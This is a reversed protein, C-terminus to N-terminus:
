AAAAARLTREMVIVTGEEQQRVDVTEMLARMLVLGRGRNAGRPARWQGRDRVTVRIRGADDRVELDFREHAPRYAHEVANACAEQCAVTIDYLEDDSAGRARLWRRLVRRVPALSERTAPWSAALEDSLPAGVRVVKYSM